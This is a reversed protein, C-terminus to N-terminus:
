AYSGYQSACSAGMSCKYVMESEFANTDRHMGCTYVELGTRKAYVLTTAADRLCNENWVCGSARM